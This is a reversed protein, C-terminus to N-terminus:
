LFPYDYNSSLSVTCEDESYIFNVIFAVLVIYHIFTLFIFILGIFSLIFMQVLSKVILYVRRASRCSPIPLTFAALMSKM